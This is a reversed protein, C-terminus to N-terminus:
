PSLTSVYDDFYYNGEIFQYAELTTLGYQVVYEFAQAPDGGGCGNM